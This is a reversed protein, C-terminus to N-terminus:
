REDHAHDELHHRRLADGGFDNELDRWLTHVHNAGGQVNEYEVVFHPGHLRWYHPESPKAGGCWAFRIKEIGNARIRQWERAALEPELDDVFQALLREVLARQPAEMAAY